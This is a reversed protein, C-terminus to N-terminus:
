LGKRRGFNMGSLSARRRSRPVRMSFPRRTKSRNRDGKTILTQLITMLNQITSLAGLRLFLFLPFHPVHLAHVEDNERQNKAESMEPGMQIPNLKMQFWQTAVMLIPLLNISFGQLVSVSDQESLDNAWLFGQGYLEAASRLMPVHEPFDPNPHPHALMGCFSQGQEGQLVEDDGSETKAPERQIKGQTQGHSGSSGANEKAFPHGQSDSALALAQGSDHPLSPWVM